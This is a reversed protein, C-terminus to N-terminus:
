KGCNKKIEDASSFGVACTEQSGEMKFTPFGQVNDCVWQLPHDKEIAGQGLCTVPNFDPDPGLEKKAADCHVCGEMTAIHVKPTPMVLPPPNGLAYCFFFHANLRTHRFSRLTRCVGCVDNM